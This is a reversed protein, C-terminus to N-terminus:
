WARSHRGFRSRFIQGKWRYWIRHTALSSLQQSGMRLPQDTPRWPSTARSPGPGVIAVVDEGSEDNAEVTRITTSRARLARVLRPRLEELALRLLSRRNCRLPEPSCCLSARTTISLPQGAVCYPPVRIVACRCKRGPEHDVRSLGLSM